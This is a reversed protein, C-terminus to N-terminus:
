KIFVLLGSELVVRQIISDLRVSHNSWWYTLKHWDLHHWHWLRDCLYRAPETLGCHLQHETRYVQRRETEARVVHGRAVSRYSRVSRMLLDLPSLEGETM